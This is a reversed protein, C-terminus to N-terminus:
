CQTPQFNLKTINKKNAKYSIIMIKHYLDYNQRTLGLQSSDKKHKKLQNKKEIEDNLM